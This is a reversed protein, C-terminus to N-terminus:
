QNLSDKLSKSAKFRIGRSEKIKIKEKTAPNFGEREPRIYTEFTGVERLYVQDDRLLAETITELVADVAQTASEKSIALTDKVNEIMEKKTIRAM